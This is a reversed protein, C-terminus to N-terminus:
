NYEEDNFDDIPPSSIFQKEFEEKSLSFLNMFHKVVKDDWLDRHIDYEIDQSMLIEMFEDENKTNLLKKVLEDNM